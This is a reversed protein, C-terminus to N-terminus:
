AQRGYGLSELWAIAAEAGRYWDVLWRRSALSCAFDKQAPIPPAGDLAKLELAVGVIGPLNPPWDFILFDSVGAMMGMRKLQKGTAWSRRGENPVHIFFIHHAQLWQAVIEHEHTESFIPKNDKTVGRARYNRMQRKNGQDQAFVASSRHEFQM